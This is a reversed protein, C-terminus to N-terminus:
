QLKSKSSKNSNLTIHAKDKDEGSDKDKKDDKEDEKASAQYLCLTFKLTPKNIRKNNM